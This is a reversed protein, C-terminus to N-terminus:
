KKNKKKGARESLYMSLFDGQNGIKKKGVGAGEGSNTKTNTNTNTTATAPQATNNNNGGKKKNKNKSQKIGVTTSRSEEEDDSDSDNNTDQPRFRKGIPTPTNIERDMAARRNQNLIKNKLQLEEKSAMGNSNNNHRM